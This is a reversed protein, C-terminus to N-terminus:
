IRAKFRFNLLAYGTTKSFYAERKTTISRAKFYNERVETVICKSENVIIIHGVLIENLSKPKNDFRKLNRSYEYNINKMIENDGGHDPHYAMVLQRYSAKLEELSLIDKFYAM